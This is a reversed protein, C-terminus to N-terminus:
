SGAAARVRTREGLEACGDVLGRRTGVGRELRVGHLLVLVTDAHLIKWGPEAMTTAVADAQDANEFAWLEVTCVESVPGRARTYHRAVSARLGQGHLTPDPVEPAENVVEWADGVPPFLRTLDPPDNREAVGEDSPAAPEQAASPTRILERRSDIAVAEACASPDDTFRGRGAADICRYMEAHGAAALLALCATFAVTRM